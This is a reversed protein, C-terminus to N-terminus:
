ASRIPMTMPGRIVRSPCHRVPGALRLKPYREFLQRLAIEGEMRALGAGICYHIGAAFSLHKRANPRAVDFRAPDPFMAPDRNAGALLAVVPRGEELRVGALTTPRRAFRVSYQAPAELRLVEEVVNGALDLDATFADRQDPNALLALTGNGIINATTVFGGILLAESTAVMGATDMEGDATVSVLRSLLDGGPEERRRELLDSFYTSMDALLARM